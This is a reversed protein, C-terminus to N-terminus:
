GVGSGDGTGRDAGHSGAKEDGHAVEHEGDTREVAEEDEDRTVGEPPPEKSPRATYSGAESGAPRGDDDPM